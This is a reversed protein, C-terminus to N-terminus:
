LLSPLVGDEHPSSDPPIGISCFFSCSLSRSLPLAPINRSCLLLLAERKRHQLGLFWALSISLKLNMMSIKHKRQGRQSIVRESNVRCRDYSAINRDGGYFTSWGGGM